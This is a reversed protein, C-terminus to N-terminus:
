QLTQVTEELWGWFAPQSRLEPSWRSPPWVALRGCRPAPWDQVCFGWITLKLDYFCEDISINQLTLHLKVPFFFSFFPFSWNSTKPATINQNLWKQRAPDTQIQEVAFGSVVPLSTDVFGGHDFRFAELKGCLSGDGDEADIVEDFQEWLRFFAPMWVSICHLRSRQLVSLSIPGSLNLM